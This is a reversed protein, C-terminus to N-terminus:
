QTTFYLHSSTGLNTYTPPVLPDGDTYAVLQGGFNLYGYQALLDAGTVIPIGQVIPNNNNDAIDLTWGGEANNNWYLNMNYTTPGLQISFTQPVSTLPVEVTNSM